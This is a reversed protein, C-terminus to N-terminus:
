RSHQTVGTNPSHVHADSVAAPLVLLSVGLTLLINRLKRNM